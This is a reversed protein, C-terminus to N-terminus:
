SGNDTFCQVSSCLLSLAESCGTKRKFGCQLVSTEFYRNFRSPLCNEFIKSPVPSITIARFNEIKSSDFNSDKLLPITIGICFEPPVYSHKLMANFLLPLSVTPHCHLVHEATVGDIGPAKGCKLKAIAARVLESDLLVNDVAGCYKSIKSVFEFKRMENQAPTNYHCV